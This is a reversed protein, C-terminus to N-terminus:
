SRQFPGSYLEYVLITSARTYPQSLTLPRFQVLLYHGSCRLGAAGFECYDHLNVNNGDRM